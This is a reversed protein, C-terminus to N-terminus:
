KKRLDLCLLKGDDRVYLRGNALALPARCPPQLLRARAKERYGQPTPDVLVLEGKETLVFLKGDALLLSGCGFGEKKWRVKGTKFDVCRFEAGLEQRGHFGYLQGKYYISTEYHNSLSKDNSWVVKAGDKKVKLLVAGTEYSASIFVLDKVVVPTAANVSPGSRSRWRKRFRVAGTKPDLSVVGARTFFLAHRVGDITAAVPSAYSAGDDTAKWVEKGSQRDFAVIGAGKGGVNVLLLKGEVLPTTGVGFFNKRVHYDANVSRRWIKKGSKLNLCHLVGAAGLTYVRGGAVVPAARPGDGKGYDDEYATAYPFKWRRKGTAAHLCEVVEQNGVRHFLILRDGAVVPGSYGAGVAKRWVLPPGDKGWTARLGTEASRGDRNPGRFQPWDAGGAAACWAAL